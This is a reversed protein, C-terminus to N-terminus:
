PSQLFGWHGPLINPIPPIFPSSFHLHSVVPAGSPRSPSPFPDWARLPFSPFWQSPLPDFPLTALNGRGMQVGLFRSLDQAQDEVWQPGRWSHLDQPLTLSPLPLLYLGSTWSWCGQLTAPPPFSNRCGAPGVCLPGAAIPSVRPPVTPSPRSPVSPFPALAKGTWKLM